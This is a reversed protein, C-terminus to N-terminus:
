TEQSGGGRTPLPGIIIPISILSGGMTMLVDLAAGFVELLVSGASTAAAQLATRVGIMAATVQATAQSITVPLQRVQQLTGQVWATVGAPVLPVGGPNLPGATLRTLQSSVLSSADRAGAVLPMNALREPHLAELELAVNEVQQMLDLRQRTLELLPRLSTSLQGAAQSNITRLENLKTVIIANNNILAAAAQELSNLHTAGEPGAVMVEGSQAEALVAEMTGRLVGHHTALTNQLTEVAASIQQAIQAPSAM